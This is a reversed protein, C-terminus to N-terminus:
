LQGVLDFEGLAMRCALRAVKVHYGGFVYTFDSAGFRGDLMKGTSDVGKASARFGPEGFARIVDHARIEWIAPVEVADLRFERLPMDCAVMYTNVVLNRRRQQGDVGVSLHRGLLVLSASDCSWGLEENGERLIDTGGESARYYGGISGDLKGPQWGGLPRQQYILTPGDRLLWINGVGLWDGDAIAQVVSKVEGTPEFTPPALIDVFEV